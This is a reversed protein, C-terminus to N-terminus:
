GCDALGWCNKHGEQRRTQTAKMTKQQQKKEKERESVAHGQMANKDQQGITRRMEGVALVHMGAPSRGVVARQWVFISPLFSCPNTKKHTGHDTLACPLSLAKRFPNHLGHSRVLLSATVPRNRSRGKGKALRESYVKRASGM